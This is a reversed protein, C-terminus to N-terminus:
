DVERRANDRGTRNFLKGTCILYLTMMRVKKDTRQKRSISNCPPGNDVWNFRDLSRFMDQVVGTITSTHMPM